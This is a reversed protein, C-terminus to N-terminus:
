QLKAQSNTMFPLLVLSFYHQTVNCFDRVVNIVLNHKGELRLTHVTYAVVSSIAEIDINKERLFWFSKTTASDLEPLRYEAVFPDILESGAFEGLQLKDSVSAMETNM